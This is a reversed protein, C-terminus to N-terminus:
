NKITKKKKSLNSYCNGKNIAFVRVTRKEKKIVKKNWKIKNM